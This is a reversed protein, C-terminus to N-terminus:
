SHGLVVLVCNEVVGKSISELMRRNNNYAKEIKPESQSLGCEIVVLGRTGDNKRYSVTWCSGTVENTSTGLSTVIIDNDKKRKSM